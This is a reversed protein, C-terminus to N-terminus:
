RTAERGPGWVVYAAEITSGVGLRGRLEAMHNKVTWHSLGLAIAAAKVSGCRGVAELVEQERPTPPKM